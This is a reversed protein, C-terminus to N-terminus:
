WASQCNESLTDSVSTNSGVEPPQKDKLIQVASALEWGVPRIM